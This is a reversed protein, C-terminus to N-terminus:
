KILSRLVKLNMKDEAYDPGKPTELIKPVRALRADNLFFGFAEKGLEGKGIHEHRDVRSGLGKKSDNFHIAALHPLGIIRDFEAMVNKYGEVTRIDYGAAFVHCTDMCVAMRKQEKVQGIIEALHEFRYGLNSGQGATAELAIKTGGDELQDFIENIARAITALGVKEGAGLHSGPHMVLYPIKLKQCRELEIKLADRSKAFLASDQSAANILYSDHAVVPNIGTEKQLQHYKEVEEDSLPKARWQNNSKVFIQITNCGVSKGHLFANFVGGAISMHAGLLPESM